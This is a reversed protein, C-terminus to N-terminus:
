IRRLTDLFLNTYQGTKGIYELDLDDLQKKLIAEKKHEGNERAKKLEAELRFMEARMEDFGDGRHEYISQNQSKNSTEKELGKKVLKSATGLLAITGVAAAGLILLNEVLESGDEKVQINKLEKDKENITYQLKEGDMSNDGFCFDWTLITRKFILQLLM